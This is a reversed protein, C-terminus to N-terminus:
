PKFRGEPVLPLSDPVDVESSHGGNTSFWVNRGREMLFVWGFEDYGRAARLLTIGKPLKPLPPRDDPLVQQLYNQLSVANTPQILKCVRALSASDARFVILCNQWQGWASAKYNAINEYFHAALLECRYGKTTMEIQVRIAKAKSENRYIQVINACVQDNFVVQPVLKGIPAPQANLRTLCCTLLSLLVLAVFLLYRYNTIM